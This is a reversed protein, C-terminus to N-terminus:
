VQHAWCDPTVLSPFELHLDLRARRSEGSADTTFAIVIAGWDRQVTNMIEKMLVLLNAATKRSSSTDSVGVTFLKREETTMMFAQFHHNNVGTWGDCQLTVKQGKTTTKAEDRITKLTTPLIRDSLSKRSFLKASPLFEQCFSVWEPNEVWSLAFGASATLRSIKDEFLAQRDPSW